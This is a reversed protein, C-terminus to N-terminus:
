IPQNRRVDWGFIVHEPTPQGVIPQPIFGWTITDYSLGILEMPITQLPTHELLEISTVKVNGLTYYMYLLNDGGLRNLDIQVSPIITGDCVHGYLIPTSRDIVKTFFFDGHVSNLGERHIKHTYSVAEIWNEHSEDNCSGQIGDMDVFIDMAALANSALICFVMLFIFVRKM